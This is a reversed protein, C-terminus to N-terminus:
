AIHTQANGAREEGLQGCGGVLDEEDTTEGEDDTGFLCKVEECAFVLNTAGETEETSDEEDEELPREHAHADLRKAEEVEKPADEM